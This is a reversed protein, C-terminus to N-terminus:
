EHIRGYGLYVDPGHNRCERLIYIQFCRLVWHGKVEASGSYSGNFREFHISLQLGDQSAKDDVSMHLYTNLMSSVTDVWLHYRAAVIETDSTRYVLGPGDLYDPVDVSVRSFGKLYDPNDPLTYLTTTQQQSSCASLLLVSLILLWRM